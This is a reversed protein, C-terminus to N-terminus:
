LPQVIKNNELLLTHSNWNSQMRVFLIRLTQSKPWKTKGPPESLLSDAQLVPSGPENGPDPLDGQLLSHCGVGTNKDLSDRPCLLRAPSRGHAQLTPCLQTVTVKLTAYHYKMTRIQTERVTYSTFYRKM